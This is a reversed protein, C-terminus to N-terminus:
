KILIATDTSTDSDVEVVGPADDDGAGDTDNNDTPNNTEFFDEGLPAVKPMVTDPKEVGKAAAALQWSPITPKGNFNVGPFSPVFVSAKVNTGNTEQIQTDAARRNLFLSKLSKM